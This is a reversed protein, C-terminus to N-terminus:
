GLKSYSFLLMNSGPSTHFSSHPFHGSLPFHLCLVMDTSHIKILVPKSRGKNQGVEKETEEEWGGRRLHLEGEGKLDAQHFFPM